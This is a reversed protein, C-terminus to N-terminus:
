QRLEDISKEMERVRSSLYQNKEELSNNELQLKM